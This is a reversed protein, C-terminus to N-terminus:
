TTIAATRPSTPSISTKSRRGSPRHSRKARSTGGFSTWHGPSVECGHTLRMFYLLRADDTEGLASMWRDRLCAEFEDEHAGMVRHVEHIFLM